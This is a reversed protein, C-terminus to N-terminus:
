LCMCERGRKYVTNYLQPLVWGGLEGDGGVVFFGSIM